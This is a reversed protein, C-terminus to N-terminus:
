DVLEIVKKRSSLGSVFRISSKNVNFHKALLQLVAENAKGQEPHATTKIQLTGDASHIVENKTSATKVTIIFRM